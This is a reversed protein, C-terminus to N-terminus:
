KGPIIYKIGNSERPNAIHFLERLWAYEEPPHAQTPEQLFTQFRSIPEAGLGINQDFGSVVIGVIKHTKKSIVASGSSGNGGYIQVMFGDVCEDPCETTSILNQTSVYGLSIQKGIGRAFNVNIVKDGVRLTSEDGLSIIPYTKDTILEFQAFDMATADDERAKLLTVPVLKGGIQDAISFVVSAPIDQVCHGATILLYDNHNKNPVQDYISATCDFHNKNDLTAYLAVTNSFVTGLFGRPEGISSSIPLSLLLAALVTILFKKM